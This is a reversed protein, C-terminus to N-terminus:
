SLWKHGAENTLWNRENGEKRGWKHALKRGEKREELKISIHNAYLM